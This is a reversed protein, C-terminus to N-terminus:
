IVVFSITSARVAVFVISARVAFFGNRAKRPFCGNVSHAGILTDNKIRGIQPVVLRCPNCPKWTRLSSARDARLRLGVRRILEGMLMPRM